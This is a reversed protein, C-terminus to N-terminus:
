WTAGGLAGAATGVVVPVVGLLVFAPLFCVGLPAVAYVGVRQARAEAEARAASRVEEALRDAVDALPAGSEVARRCARALPGLGPESALVDWADAPDAGLSLRSEVGQLTEGLPGGVARAVSTAATAPATGTALCAALLDAALPADAAVVRRRRRDRGTRARALLRVLLPVAGAGALVGAAGGVLVGVALGALVSVGVRVRFGTPGTRPRGDPGTDPAAGHRRARARDVAALRRRAVRSPSPPVVAAVVAAAGLGALVTATV